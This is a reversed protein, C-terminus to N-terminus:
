AQGPSLRLWAWGALVAASLEWVLAIILFNGGVQDAIMGVLRSLGIAAGAVGLLVLAATTWQPKFFPVLLLIALAIETGGYFARFEARALGDLLDYHIFRAMSTPSFVAWVGFVLFSLSYFGLVFRAFLM